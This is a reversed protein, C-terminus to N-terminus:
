YLLHPQRRRAFSDVGESCIPLLKSWSSVNFLADLIRETGTTKVFMRARNSERLQPTLQSPFADCLAMTLAMAAHFPKFTSDRAFALHYGECVEKAYKGAIPSFRGYRCTVGYNRLRTILLSDQPFTPAGIMTFPATTGIGISSLGLEGSLGTVAYGRASEITPINPSTPYWHLGTDEWSMERTWGKCRVVTLSCTRPQGDQGLELWGEKNIMVALEGMTCGHIYPVPVRAVFSRIDHDPLPGDMIVGGLPNPRDLIMMPKRQIACAEMVEAMTSLYTYSRSGIDQMDVIVLDADNIMSPAPRRLAGYLSLAPVGNVSDDAVEKGARIVGYYGHEPALIRVVTVNSRLLFEEATSRGTGARAAAHTVLVVRKGDVLQFDTDILNDIGCKVRPVAMVDM